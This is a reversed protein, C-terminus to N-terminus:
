GDAIPLGRGPGEGQMSSATGSGAADLSAAQQGRQATINESARTGTEQGARCRRIEVGCDGALHVRMDRSRGRGRVISSEGAPKACDIAERM